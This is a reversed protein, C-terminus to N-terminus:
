DGEYEASMLDNDLLYQNFDKYNKLLGKWKLRKLETDAGKSNLQWAQIYDGWASLVEKYNDISKEINTVIM